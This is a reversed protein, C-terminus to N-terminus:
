NRGACTPGLGTIISEPVTLPRGCKGCKGLHYIELQDPEVGDMLKEITWQIAKVSPADTGIKSKATHRFGGDRTIVGVYQYDTTNQPGTLVSVFFLDPRDKAVSVRYTFRTGTKRSVLTFIAYGALIFRLAHELSLPAPTVDTKRALTAWDEAKQITLM